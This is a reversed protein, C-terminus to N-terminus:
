PNLAKVVEVIDSKQNFNIKFNQKEFVSIMKKNDTTTQAVIQKLGWGKAIEVCYTTLSNGLGKSQWLDSVLVAYEVSDHNPDAVLRGVGILKKEKGEQVEAVIAIERDYDIFCYRTAVEHSNWHFFYRFRSYITEKSCDSLMQLWLPEDEPMIPRLTIETNNLTIKKILKEPYPKLALHNYDSDKVESLNKDVVARADLAIIEKETVILPNIDFEVIEPLNAALYSFRIITELLKSINLPLSGRYGKLLPFLKLSELMHRALSENLPPFGLVKDAYLEAATGGQGVMIVTGFVPDRKIGLILEISNNSKVMPQVTFGEIAVKPFNTSINEYMSKYASQLSNVNEINLVVGNFETKHVIDKSYVKLVVPFGITKAVKVAECEDTVLVPLSTKIGYAELINKSIIESLFGEKDLTLSNFKARLAKRDITFEVPISKPTQYLREINRAYKVLTMFGKVAQEPSRYTAIGADTLISIGEAMSKGGMWATLIPKNTEKSIKVVEIAANVPNTMAQPTLIVLLADVCPDESVIKLAKAIRKSRADGLVDVPNGHSWSAPLAENLKNISDSSLEALAGHESILADTAIVGPGGANTVIGLRAGRPEKHRGILEACDFVDDFRLVRTLGIRKFAADYISDESIMAGTHSSAVKASEAFRGAKYAIIPKVRAFARVATMFKSARKISEIYLLISKTLENEGFYDILDAFDVDIANGISVFFSFGIKEGIAWDLVSTCLAGSQSIFAIHGKEPIGSSFSINLKSGPVIIGLCNPGLIRMGYYKSAINKISEELLKGEEGTESFGSSIIIIGLIGRKGCQDVLEPISKSDSCIVALDPVSPLDSLNAYCHIGLVAEFEPNVPYVVGNFGSGILNSLLKGGVSNPNSTVGIVAIKKPKFFKDLNLISM